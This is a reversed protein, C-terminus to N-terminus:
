KRLCDRCLGHVELYFNKVEGWQSIERPFKLKHVEPWEFDIIKHCRLCVLHYHPRTNPDFRAKDDFLYIRKVLGLEEFTSLTRYITDLSITPVKQKVRAYVEEATPHDESSLLVRFIELRQYTLKIGFKQCLNRFRDLLDQELTDMNKAATVM